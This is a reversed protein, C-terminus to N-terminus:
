LKVSGQTEANGFKGSGSLIRFALVKDVFMQVWAQLGRVGFMASDSSWHLDSLQRAFGSVASALESQVHNKNM